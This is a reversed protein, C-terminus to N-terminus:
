IKKGARKNNGYLSSQPCGTITGGPFMAKIIDSFKADKKLKGVINSVIHHVSPYSEVVMFENIKISGVQCVRGLDNRELDLLMIHEAREKDNTLLENKLENDNKGRPRTGAIPRTSINNDLVQFLREPSSSIIDFGNFNVLASFPAPNKARLVQYIDNATYNKQLQLKWIRSLNVQFVDGSVIYKKIKKISSIFTSKDSNFINARIRIIKKIKKANKIDLLIERVLDNDNDESIIFTNKTKNDIVIASKIRVAYAIPRPYNKIINKLKDEIQAVFEYSLYVFYGGVFPMEKNINSFKLNNDLIKLFDYDDIDNLSIEEKPHTFLINYNSIKNTNASNELLFPYSHKKYANLISLDFYPIKVKIM